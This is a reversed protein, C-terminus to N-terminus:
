DSIRNGHKDIQNEMIARKELQSRLNTAEDTTLGRVDGYCKEAIASRINRRLLEPNNPDKLNAIERRLKDNENRQFQWLTKYLDVEHQIKDASATTIKESKVVFENPLEALAIQPKNFSQFIKDTTIVPKKKM